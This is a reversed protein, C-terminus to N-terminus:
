RLAHDHVGDLRSFFNKQEFRNFGVLQAGSQLL